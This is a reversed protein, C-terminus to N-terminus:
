ALRTVHRTIVVQPRKDFRVRFGWGHDTEIAEQEAM